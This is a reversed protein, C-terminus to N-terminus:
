FTWSGALASIGDKLKAPGDDKKVGTVLLGSTLPRFAGLKVDKEHKADVTIGMAPKEPLLNAQSTEMDLLGLKYFGELCTHPGIQLPYEAAAAAANTGGGSVLNYPVFVPVDDVCRDDLIPQLWGWGGVGSKKGGTGTGATGPLEAPAVPGVVAPPSPRPAAAQATTPTIDSLPVIAPALRDTENLPRDWDDEDALDGRILMPGGRFLLRLRALTRSIIWRPLEASAAPLIGTAARVPQGPDILCSIVLAANHNCVARSYSAPDAHASAPVNHGSLFLRRSSPSAFANHKPPPADGTVDHYRAGYDNRSPYGFDTYLCSLDPRKAKIPDAASTTASTKSPVCYGVLGDSLNTKDGLLVEFQYEELSIEDHDRAARRGLDSYSQTQMPPTALELSLAMNVLAIPRGVLNLLRGDGGSTIPDPHMNQCADALVSWLGFLYKPDNMLKILERLQSGEDFDGATGLDGEAYYAQWVVTGGLTGPLLAEGMSEGSANYVQIGRDRFDIVLWGWVPDEYETTPRWMHRSPANKGGDADGRYWQTSPHHSRWDASNVVFELNLRADQNIRHGLQFYQSQGETDLEVSNAFGPGETVNPQCALSRGVCPYLKSPPERSTKPCQLPSVVQGFKDVINFKTFRAQGHTVPKFDLASGLASFCSERYPTVDFGDPSEQLLELLARDDATDHGDSDTDAAHPIVHSGRHLTLLHDTFGELSGVLLNMNRLAEQLQLRIDNAGSADTKLAPQENVLNKDLKALLQALLTNLVWGANPRLLSRGSMVRRHRDLGDYASINVEPAIVYQATGDAEKELRWFRKPLHHYELEWEVFLARWPQTDRWRVEEPRYYTPPPSLKEIAQGCLSYVWEEVLTGVADRVWGPAVWNLAHMNDLTQFFAQLRTISHNGASSEKLKAMLDASEFFLKMGNQTSLNTTDTVLSALWEQIAKKGEPGRFPLRELDRGTEQQSALFESPWAPGLGGLLITPDHRSFFSPRATRDLGDFHPMKKKNFMTRLQKVKALQESADAIRKKSEEQCERAEWMGGPTQCRKKWWECFLSHRLYREEHDLADLYAQWRDMIFMRDMEDATPVHQQEYPTGKSQDRSEHNYRWCHGGGVPKFGSRLNQAVQADLLGGRGVQDIVVKAERILKTWAFNSPLSDLYTELAELTDQGVAVPQSEKVTQSVSEADITAPKASRNWKVDFLSGHCVLKKEDRNANSFYGFVAYSVTATAAYVARSGNASAWSLDDHISLVNSNHHQFDAFLPNGADLLALPTHYQGDPAPDQWDDDFKRKIGLFVDAQKEVPLGHDIFPAAELEVDVDDDRGLHRIRNSEVIFAEVAPAPTASAETTTAESVFRLIIWRDPVAAHQTTQPKGDAVGPVEPGSGDANEGSSASSSGPTQIPATGRFRRPLCWHLYVGLRDKRLRDDESSAGGATQTVDAIRSNQYWPYASDVDVHPVVDPASFAGPLFASHDPISLPAIYYQDTFIHQNLVFADLQMSLCEVSSKSAKNAIPPAAVPPLSAAAATTTPPAGPAVPAPPSQTTTTTASPADSAAPVTTPVVVLAPNPEGPQQPPPSAPAEGPAPTSAAPDSM